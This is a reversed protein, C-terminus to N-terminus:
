KKSSINRNRNTKEISIITKQRFKSIFGCWRMCYAVVVFGYPLVYAARSFSHKKLLKRVARNFVDLPDAAAVVGDEEPEKLSSPKEQEPETFQERIFDLIVPKDEEVGCAARRVDFERSQKRIEQATRFYFRGVWYITLWQVVMIANVVYTLSHDFKLINQQDYADLSWWVGIIFAVVRILAECSFIALFLVCQWCYVFDLHGIDRVKMYVAVEYLCWLRNFYEADVVCLLKRCRSLIHPLHRLSAMTLEPDVVPQSICNQDLFLKQRSFAQGWVALFVLFLVLRCPASFYWVEFSGIFDGFPLLRVGGYGSILGAAFLLVVTCILSICVAAVYNFHVLLSCFLLWRNMMWRYSIFADIDAGPELPKSATKFRRRWDKVTM